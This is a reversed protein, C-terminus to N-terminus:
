QIVTNTDLHTEHTNVRYITTGFGCMCVLTMSSDPTVTITLNDRKPRWAIIVLNGYNDVHGLITKEGRQECVPCVLVNHNHSSM